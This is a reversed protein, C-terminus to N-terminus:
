TPSRCYGSDALLVEPRGTIGAATLTGTLQILMPALQQLDNSTQALDAAVIV